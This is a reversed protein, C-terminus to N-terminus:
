EDVCGDLPAPRLIAALDVMVQMRGCGTIATERLLLM